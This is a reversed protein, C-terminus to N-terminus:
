HNYSDQRHSATQGSVRLWTFLSLSQHQTHSIQYMYKIWDNYEYGRCNRASKDTVELGTASYLGSSYLIKLKKLTRHYNYMGGAGARSIESKECLTNLNESHNECLVAVTERFLLLLRCLTFATRERHSVSNKIYM